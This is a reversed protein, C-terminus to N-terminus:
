TWVETDSEVLLRARELDQGTDIERWRGDIFAPWAAHGADILDQLLDTLYANRFRAARQFPQDDRGRYRTTLADIAAAILQTGAADAKGLGIFEGVAEAAPLARKGVRAIRGDVRLDCVEAEDLPHETRGEYISRFERDVVLAIPGPAAVVARAVEPTYIIDSYTFLIPGSLEDRACALSLLINNTEWERNDVYRAPIGLEAVFRELVDGKYGRIIVLEDVGAAALAAWQWALMPRDGVRVMCKPVEDTHAGLRKGRGAAIVIAKM